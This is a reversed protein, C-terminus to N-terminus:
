SVLSAVALPKLRHVIGDTEQMRRLYFRTFTSERSWRCQELITAMPVNTQWAWSAAAARISHPTFHAPPSQRARRYAAAITARLWAALHRATAAGGSKPHVWFRAGPAREHFGAEYQQLAGVPCLPEDQQPLRPIHVPPLAVHARSARTRKPVFLPDFRFTVGTATFFPPGQWAALESLRAGSSFAALFLAKYTTQLWTLPQPLELLDRLVLSLDWELSRPQQRSIDSRRMAPFVALVSPHTGLNQLGPKFRLTHVIASLLGRVTSYRAGGEFQEALYNAVQVPLPSLPSISNVLCWRVFKQWRNEYVKNTSPAV